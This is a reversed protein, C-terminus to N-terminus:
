ETRHAGTPTGAVVLRSPLPQGIRGAIFGLDERVDRIEKHVGDFRTNMERHVGDFRTNMERHVGDFRANMERHVEDFRRDVGQFRQDMKVELADVKSDITTDLHRRVAQIDAFLVGFLAVMLGSLIGVIELTQNTM